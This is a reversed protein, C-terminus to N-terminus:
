TRPDQNDLEDEDFDPDAVGRLSSSEGGRGSVPALGEEQWEARDAAAIEDGAKRPLHDHGILVNAVRDSVRHFLEHLFMVRRVAPDAPILPWVLTVWRDDGWQMAANAFGLARPRTADPEPRTVILRM